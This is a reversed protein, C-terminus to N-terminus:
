DKIEEFDIYEGGSPDDNNRKADNPKSIIIEGERRSEHGNINSGQNNYTSNINKLYNRLWQPLFAKVVFKLGYYLLIGILIFKLLVAM